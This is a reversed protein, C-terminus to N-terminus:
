EAPWIEVSDNIRSKGTSSRVRGSKIQESVVRKIEGTPFRGFHLRVIKIVLDRRSMKTTLEAEVVASVEHPDPVFKVPATEFLYSTRDRSEDVLSDRSKVMEDNMLLLADPHRSAFVLVYKPAAHDIHERIEHFCVEAFHKRLRSCYGSVLEAVENAFPLRKAVVGEWWDGGAFDSLEEKTISRSIQEDEPEDGTETKMAARACRAFATANFNILVEVSKRRELWQFIQALSRLSLGKIAFPDLYLFVSHSPVESLIDPLTSLFDTHKCTVFDFQSLLNVLQTASHKNAEIAWLKAPKGSSQIAHAIILPSGPSGDKFKGPGAFGDVILIPLGQTAVKPLYAALYSGLIRDKRKSWSRKSDFFESGAAHTM